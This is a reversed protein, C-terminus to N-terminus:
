ILNQLVTEMRDKTGAISMAAWNLSESGLGYIGELYKMNRMVQEETINGTVVYRGRYVMAIDKELLCNAKEADNAKNVPNLADLAFITGACSSIDGCLCLYVSATSLVDSILHLHEFPCDIVVANYEQQYLLSIQLQRITDDSLKFNPLSVLADFSYDPPKYAVASIKGGVRVAGLGNQTAPGCRVLNEISLSFLSGRRILDLDVYLTRTMQAFHKAVQLAFTTSGARRDGTIVILGCTQGNMIQAYKTGANAMNIPMNPTGVAGVTGMPAANGSKQKMFGKGRKTEKKGVSAVPTAVPVVPTNVAPTEQTAKGGMVAKLGRKGRENPVNNSKAVNANAKAAVVTETTELTEEEYNQVISDINYDTPLGDDLMDEDFDSLDEASDSEDYTSQTFDGMDPLDEIELESEIDSMEDYETDYADINGMDDTETDAYEMTDNEEFTMDDAGYEDETVDGYGDADFDGQEIAGYDATDFDDTGYDGLSDDYGRAMEDTTDLKGYDGFTDGLDIPQTEDDYESYDDESTGTIDYADPAIGIDEFDSVTEEVTEEVPKTYLYSSYASRLEAISKVPLASIFNTKMTASCFVVSTEEDYCIDTCAALIDESRLIVIVQIAMYHVDLYDKMLQLSGVKDSSNLAQETIIVRDCVINRSECDTVFLDLSKYTSVDINDWTELIHQKIKEAATSGFIIIHM